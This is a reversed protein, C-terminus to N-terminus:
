SGLSSCSCEKMAGQDDLSALFNQLIALEQLLSGEFARTSYTSFCFPPVLILPHACCRDDVCPVDATAFYGTTFKPGSSTGNLLLAKTINSYLQQDFLAINQFCPSLVNYPNIDSTLLAFQQELKSCAEAACAGGSKLILLGPRTSGACSWHLSSM